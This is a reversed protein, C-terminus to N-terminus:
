GITAQVIVHLLLRVGFQARGAPRPPRRAVGEHAGRDRASVARSVMESKDEPM